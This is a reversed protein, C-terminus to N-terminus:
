RQQTEIDRETQMDTFCMYKGTEREREGGRKREQESSVRLQQTESTILFSGNEKVCSMVKCDCVGTRWQTVCSAYDQYTRPVAGKPPAM